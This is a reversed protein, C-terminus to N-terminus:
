RRFASLDIRLVPPSSLTPIPASRRGHGNTRGDLYDATKEDAPFLGTEAGAEVAMNAVALREDVSLAEAGEGVFELM